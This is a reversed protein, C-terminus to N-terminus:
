MWSPRSGRRSSSAPSSSARSPSWRSMAMTAGASIRLNFWNGVPDLVVVQAGVKLMEECLKSAGYTKGSKKKGMFAVTETIIELPLKLDTAITLKRQNAM